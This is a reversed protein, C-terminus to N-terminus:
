AIPSVAFSLQDSPGIIILFFVKLDVVWFGLDDANWVAGLM